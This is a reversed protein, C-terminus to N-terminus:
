TGSPSIKAPARHLPVPINVSEREQRELRKEQLYFLFSVSLLCGVIVLGAIRCLRFARDSGYLSRDFIIRGIVLTYVIWKYAKVWISPGHYFYLAIMVVCIIAGALDETWKSSLFQKLSKM